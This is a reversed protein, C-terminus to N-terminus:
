CLVEAVCFFVVVVVCVGSGRRVDFSHNLMDAVPILIGCPDPLGNSNVPPRDTRTTQGPRLFSSPFLRTCISTHAWLYQPFTCHESPFISPHKQSLMPFFANYTNRMMQVRGTERQGVPTGKLATLQAGDDQKAVFPPTGYQLPLSSLYEAYSSQPTAPTAPTATTATTATTAAVANSTVKAQEVMIYLSMLIRAPVSFGNRQAFNSALRGQISEQIVTETILCDLPISFILADAPIDCTAFLGRGAVSTTNIHVRSCDGGHTSVWKQLNTFMNKRDHFTLCHGDRTTRDIATRPTLHDEIDLGQGFIAIKTRLYDM